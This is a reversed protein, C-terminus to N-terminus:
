EVLDSLSSRILSLLTEIEFPKTMFGDCGVARAREEDRPLGSATMAIIPIKAYRDDAKLQAVLDFGSVEPLMLDTIILDPRCEELIAFAGPADAAAHVDYGARVLVARALKVNVPNDDVVLIAEGAM